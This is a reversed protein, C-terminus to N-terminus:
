FVFAVERLKYSCICCVGKKTKNRVVAFLHKKVKEIKNVIKKQKFTEWKHISHKVAYSFSGGVMQKSSIKIMEFVPQLLM